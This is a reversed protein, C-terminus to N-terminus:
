KRTLVSLGIGILSANIIYYSRTDIVGNKQEYTSKISSIGAAVILGASVKILITSLEM